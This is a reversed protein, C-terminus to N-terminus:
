GGSDLFKENQKILNRLDYYPKTHISNGWGGERKLFLSGPNSENRTGDINRSFTTSLVICLPRAVPNTYKDTGNPKTKEGFWNMQIMECPQQTIEKDQQAETKRPTKENATHNANLCVCHTNSQIPRLSPSPFPSSNFHHLMKHSWKGNPQEPAWEAWINAYVALLLLYVFECPLHRVFYWWAYCFWNWSWLNHEVVFTTKLM